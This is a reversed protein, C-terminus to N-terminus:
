NSRTLGGFTAHNFDSYDTETEANFISKPVVSVPRKRSHVSVVIRHVLCAATAKEGAPPPLRTSVLDLPWNFCINFIVLNPPQKVHLRLPGFIFVSLRALCPIEWLPIMQDLKLGPSCLKAAASIAM